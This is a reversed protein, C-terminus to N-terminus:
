VDDEQVPGHKMKERGKKLTRELAFISYHLNVLETYIQPQPQRAWLTNAPGYDECSWSMEDVVVNHSGSALSNHRHLWVRRM